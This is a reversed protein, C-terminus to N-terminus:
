NRGKILMEKATKYMSESIKGKDFLTQNISLKLEIDFSNNSKFLEDTQVKKAM